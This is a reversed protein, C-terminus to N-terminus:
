ALQVIHTIEQSSLFDRIYLILPDQSFAQVEYHSAGTFNGFYRPAVRELWFSHCLLLSAFFVLIGAFFWWPPFLLYRLQGAQSSKGPKAMQSTQLETKFPELSKNKALISIGEATAAESSIKAWTHLTVAYVYAM